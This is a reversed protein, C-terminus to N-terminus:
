ISPAIATDIQTLKGFGDLVEGLRLQKYECTDTMINVAEGVISRIVAQNFRRSALKARGPVSASLKKSPPEALTNSVEHNLVYLANLSQTRTQAAQNKDLSSAQIQLLKDIRSISQRLVNQELETQKLLEQLQELGQELRETQNSLEGFRQEDIRMLQRESHDRQQALLRQRNNIFEKPQHQVSSEVNAIGTQQALQDLRAIAQDAQEPDLPEYAIPEIAAQNSAAALQQQPAQTQTPAFQPENTPETSVMVPLLFFLLVLVFTLIPGYRLLRWGARKSNAQAEDDAHLDATAEDMHDSASADVTEALEALEEYSIQSM